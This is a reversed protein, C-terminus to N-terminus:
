HYPSWRSRCEKGVRREESRTLVHPVGGQANYYVSAKLKNQNDYVYRFGAKSNLREVGQFIFKSTQGQAKIGQSVLFLMIPVILLSSLKKM